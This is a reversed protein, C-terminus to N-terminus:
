YREFNSYPLINEIKLHPKLMEKDLVTRKIKYPANVKELYKDKEKKLTDIREEFEDIFNDPSAALKMSDKRSLFAGLNDYACVPNNSLLV